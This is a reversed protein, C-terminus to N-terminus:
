SECEDDCTDLSVNSFSATMGWNERADKCKETCLRHIYFYKDTETQIKPPKPTMFSTSRRRRRLRVHIYQIWTSCWWSSSHPATWLPRVNDHCLYGWRQKDTRVKGNSGHGGSARQAERVNRWRVDDLVMERMLRLTFKEWFFSCSVVM